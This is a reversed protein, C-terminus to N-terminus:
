QNFPLDNKVEGIGPNFKRFTPPVGDKTECRNGVNRISCIRNDSNKCRKCCLMAREIRM